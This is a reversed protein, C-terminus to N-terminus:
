NSAPGGFLILRGFYDGQYGADAVGYLEQCTKFKETNTPNVNHRAEDVVTVHLIYSSSKTDYLPTRGNGMEPINKAEPDFSVEGGWEVQTAVDALGTFLTKPWYGIGYKDNDM